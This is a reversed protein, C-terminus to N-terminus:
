LYTGIYLKTFVTSPPILWNRQYINHLSATVTSQQFVYPLPSVIYFNVTMAPVLVPCLLSACKETVTPLLVICMCIYETHCLGQWNKSVEPNLSKRSLAVHAGACPLTVIYAQLRNRVILNVGHRQRLQSRWLSCFTMYAGALQFEATRFVQSGNNSALPQAAPQATRTESQCICSDSGPLHAM